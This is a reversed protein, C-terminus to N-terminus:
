VDAGNKCTYAFVIKDGDNVAYESCSRNPKEGNVSYIWGSLSGCDFEYLGGIGEIYYSSYLPTKTFELAIKNSKCVRKLIDFATDGDHIEAATSQLIVGSTAKDSLVVSTHNKAYEAANGCVIEIECLNQLETKVASSYANSTSAAKAARKQTQTKSTDAATSQRNNGGLDTDTQVSSKQAATNIVSAGYTSEAAAYSETYGVASTSPIAIDSVAIDASSEPLFIMYGVAAAACILVAAILIATVLKIKGFKAKTNM